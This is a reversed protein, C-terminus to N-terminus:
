TSSRDIKEVVVKPQGLKTMFTHEGESSGGDGDSSEHSPPVQYLMDGNDVLSPNRNSGM